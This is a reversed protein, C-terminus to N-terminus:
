YIVHNIITSTIHSKLPKIASTRVDAIIWQVELEIIMYDDIWIIIYNM